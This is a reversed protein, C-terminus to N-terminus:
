RVQQQVLCSSYMSGQFLAAHAPPVGVLKLRVVYPPATSHARSHLHSCHGQQPTCPEVALFMYGGGPKMGWCGLASMEFHGQRSIGPLSYSALSICAWTLPTEASRQSDYISQVLTLCSNCYSAASM